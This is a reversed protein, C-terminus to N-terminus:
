IASGISFGLAQGGRCRGVGKVAFGFKVKPSKRACKTLVNGNPSSCSEIVSNISLRSSKLSSLPCVYGYTAAM